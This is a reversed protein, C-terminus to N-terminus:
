CYQSYTHWVISIIIRDSIHLVLINKMAKKINNQNISDSFLQGSQKCLVGVSSKILVEYEPVVKRCIPCCGKDQGWDQHGEVHGCNLYVYPQQREDATEDSMSPTLKRPIVLTNLGVPCQPRGANLEDVLTELHHKTQFVPIEWNWKDNKWM